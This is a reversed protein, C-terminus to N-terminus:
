QPESDDTKSQRFSPGRVVPVRYKRIYRKTMEPNTHGLLKQPDQGQEDADTGSKARMDHITVGEVKAADRAEDFWSWIAPYSPPGGWRGGTLLFEKKSGEPHMSQARKVVEKLDQNWAIFIRVKGRGKKQDIFIGKDTIDVNRIKLVDSIRQGTLYCLDMTIQLAPVANARIAEFEHTEMYRTRRNPKLSKVGVCPNSEVIEEELAYDFVMRLVNITRNCVSPQDILKRRIAVVDRQTVQHPSYEQLVSQLYRATRTYTAKTSEAKDKLIFPLAEEILEQMGGQKQRHLRAYEFLADQLDAGLRRWKGKKVYWYAGHKLFVCPPLHRDKKRPRM